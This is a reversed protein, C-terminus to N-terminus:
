NEKSVARGKLKEWDREPRVELNKEWVAQLVTPKVGNDKAVHILANLDKPFCSGGFGSKGDPGPTSLHTRGIRKDYLGYEIVKDYDVNVEDCIQKMENAFSVKTALFCNTFYKVTEATNSGTKVITVEQFVKRFMNKVITTAPRPGGIIIRNQNKFDNIFNAETLFEPSFVVSVNKFTKNLNETTGPPVTSKIVAIHFNSYKDIEAIASEVISLDCSGDTRMPTPLCVFIIKTKKCLQEVSNCTSLESKFKDYTDITLAHQMGEKIATGVFGQGIIGINNM